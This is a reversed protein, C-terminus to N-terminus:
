LPVTEGRGKRKGERNEEGGRIWMVLFYGMKCWSPPRPASYDGGAPDQASGQGFVFKTCEIAALFGSTAIMKFIRLVM